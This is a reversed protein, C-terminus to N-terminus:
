QVHLQQISDADTKLKKKLEVLSFDTNQRLGRGSGIRTFKNKEGSAGM